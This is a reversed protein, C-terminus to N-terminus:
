LHSYTFLTRFIIPDYKSSFLIMGINSTNNTKLNSLLEMKGKLYRKYTSDIVDDVNNGHGPENMGNDM